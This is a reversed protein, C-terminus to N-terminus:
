RRLLSSQSCSSVPWPVTMTMIVLALVRGDDDDDDDDSICKSTFLYHSVLAFTM